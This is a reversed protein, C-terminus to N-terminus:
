ASTLGRELICLVCGMARGLPALTFASHLGSKKLPYRLALDHYDSLYPLESIKLARGLEAHLQCRYEPRPFGRTGEKCPSRFVNCYQAGGRVRGEHVDGCSVSAGNPLM